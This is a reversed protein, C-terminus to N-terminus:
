KREPVIYRLHRSNRAGFYGLGGEKINSRINAPPGSFLPNSFGSESRIEVIFNFYDQSISSMTFDLTDGPNVEDEFLFLVGIGNTNNGNFFRDDNVVSRRLTDTLMLGNIQLDFKYFDVSPPDQAYLNVLWFGFNEDQVVQISDIQFNTTPMFTEATYYDDDGVAEMLNIELRYSRGPKGSFDDATAYVGAQDPLEILQFGDIGDNLYILAGSVADPEQNSFYSSSTTLKVLHSTTDTTIVGDVVLRAYSDDLAIDIRETCSVVFVAISMLLYILLKRSNNM